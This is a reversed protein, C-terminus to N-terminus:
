TNFIYHEILNIQSYIRVFSIKYSYITIVNYLYENGTSKIHAVKAVEKGLRKKLILVLM